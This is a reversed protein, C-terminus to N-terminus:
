QTDYNRCWPDDFAEVMVGRAEVAAALRRCATWIRAERLREVAEAGGDAIATERNEGHRELEFDLMFSLRKLWPQFDPRGFAQIWGDLDDAMNMPGRHLAELNPPLVQWLNAYADNDEVSRNFTIRLEQLNHLLPLLRPFLSDAM